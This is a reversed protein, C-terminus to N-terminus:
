RASVDDTGEDAGATETQAELSFGDAGPQEGSGPLSDDSASDRLRSWDTVIIQEEGSRGVLWRLSVGTSKECGVVVSANLVARPNIISGSRLNLV